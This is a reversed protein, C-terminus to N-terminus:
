STRECDCVGQADVQEVEEEGEYGGLEVRGKFLGLIHLFAAGVVGDEGGFGVVLESREHATKGLELEPM